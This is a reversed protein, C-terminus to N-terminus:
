QAAELFMGSISGYPHPPSLQYREPHVCHPKGYCDTASFVRVITWTSGGGSGYLAIRGRDNLQVAEGSGFLRCSGSSGETPIGSQDM